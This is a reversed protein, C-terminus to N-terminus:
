SIKQVKMTREAKRLIAAWEKHSKVILKQSPSDKKTMWDTAEILHQCISFNVFNDFISQVVFAMEWTYGSAGYPEQLKVGKEVDSQKLDPLELELSVLVKM